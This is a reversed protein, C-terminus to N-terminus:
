TGFIRSVTPHLLKDIEPNYQAATQAAYNSAAGTVAGIGAGQLAGLWPKIRKKSLVQGKEDFTEDYGPVLLGRAGGLGGGVAASILVNRLATYDHPLRIKNATKVGFQFPTM